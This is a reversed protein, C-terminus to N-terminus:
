DSDEIQIEIEEAFEQVFYWRGGRQVYKTYNRASEMWEADCDAKGRVYCCTAWYLMLLVGIGFGIVASEM